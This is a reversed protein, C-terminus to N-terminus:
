MSNSAACATMKAARKLVPVGVCSCVDVATAEIGEGPSDNLLCREGCEKLNSIDQWRTCISTPLLTGVDKQSLMVQVDRPMLLAEVGRQGLYESLDSAFCSHGPLRMFQSDLVAKTTLYFDFFTSAGQHQGGCGGLKSRLEMSM